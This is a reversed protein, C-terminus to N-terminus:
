GLLWHILGAWTIGVVFGGFVQSPSHGLALSYATKQDGLKLTDSIQRLTKTNEGTARRVGMSDYVVVGWITLALGFITSDFGQDLGVLFAVSTVLSVHSSPMGGSTLLDYWNLGDQRLSLIIKIMQAVIWGGAAVVIYIYDSLFELM